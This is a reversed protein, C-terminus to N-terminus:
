FPAGRGAGEKGYPATVRGIDSGCGGVRWLRVWVRWVCWARWGGVGVGGM